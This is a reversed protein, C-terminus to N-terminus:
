QRTVQTNVTPGVDIEFKDGIDFTLTKTYIGVFTVMIEFHLEQHNITLTQGLSTAMQRKVWGVGLFSLMKMITIMMMKKKQFRSM